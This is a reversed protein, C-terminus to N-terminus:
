AGMGHLAPTKLMAILKGSVPVSIGLPMKLLRVMLPVGACPEDVTPISSVM